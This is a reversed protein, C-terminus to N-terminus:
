WGLECQLGSWPQPHCRCHAASDSTKSHVTKQLESCSGMTLSSLGPRGDHVSHCSALPPGVTWSHGTQCVEAVSAEEVRNEVSEAESRAETVIEMVQVLVEGVGVDLHLLVRVLFIEQVNDLCKM